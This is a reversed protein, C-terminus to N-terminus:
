ATMRVIHRLFVTLRTMYIFQCETFICYRVGLSSLSQHNDDGHDEASQVFAAKQGTSTARRCIEVQSRWSDDVAQLECRDPAHKRLAITRMAAISCVYQQRKM